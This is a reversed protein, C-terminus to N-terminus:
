WLVVLVVLLSILVNTQMKGFPLPCPLFYRFLVFFVYAYVMENYYIYISHMSISNELYSCQQNIRFITLGGWDLFWCEYHIWLSIQTKDKMCYISKQTKVWQIRSNEKNNESSWQSSGAPRDWQKRTKSEACMRLIAHTIISWVTIITFICSPSFNIEFNCHEIMSQYICNVIRIYYSWKFHAILLSFLIKLQM